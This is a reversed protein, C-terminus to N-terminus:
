LYIEMTSILLNAVEMDFFYVNSEIDVKINAVYSKANKKVHRYAM